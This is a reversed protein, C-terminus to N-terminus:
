LERYLWEEYLNELLDQVLVQHAEIAAGIVEGALKNLDDLATM